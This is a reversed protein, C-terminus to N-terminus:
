SISAFRGGCNASSTSRSTVETRAVTFTTVGHGGDVNSLQAVKFTSHRMLNAHLVSNQNEHPDVVVDVDEVVSAAVLIEAEGFAFHVAFRGLDLASTVARHKPQFVTFRDRERRSSRYRVVVHAVKIAM